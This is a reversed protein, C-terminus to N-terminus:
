DNKGCSLAFVHQANPLIGPQAADDIMSFMFVTQFFREMMAKLETGTRRHIRADGRALRPDVAALGGALQESLAPQRQMSRRPLDQRNLPTAIASPTDAGLIHEHAQHITLAPAM